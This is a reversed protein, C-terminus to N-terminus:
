KISRKLTKFVGKKEDLTVTFELGPRSELKVWLKKRSSAIEMDELVGRLFDEEIGASFSLSSLDCRHRTYEEEYALVTRVIREAYRITQEEFKRREKELIKILDIKLKGKAQEISTDMLKDYDLGKTMLRLVNDGIFNANAASSSRNEHSSLAQVDIDVVLAKLGKASKYFKMADNSLEYGANAIKTIQSIIDQRVDLSLDSPRDALDGKLISGKKTSGFLSSVLVYEGEQLFNKSTEADEKTVKYIGMKPIRVGEKRLDDIVKQYHMAEEHTIPGTKGDPRTRIIWGAPNFKKIVVRNRTGDKWQIRGFYCFGYNGGGIKVPRENANMTLKLRKVNTAKKLM